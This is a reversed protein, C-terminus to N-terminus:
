DFKCNKKFRKRAESIKYRVLAKGTANRDREEAQEQEADTLSEESTEYPEPAEDSANRDGEVAQEQETDTLSEATSKELEVMSRRIEHHCQSPWDCDKFCDHTGNLFRETRAQLMEARRKAEKSGRRTKKLPARKRTPERRWDNWGAWGAYDFESLCVNFKNRPTPAEGVCSRHSCRLCRRTAALRYTSSCRHCQWNWTAPRPPPPQTRSPM